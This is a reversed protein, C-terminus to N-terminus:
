NLRPSLPQWITDNVPVLSQAEIARLVFEDEGLPTRSLAERMAQEALPLLSTLDIRWRHNEREFRWRLASPRNGDMQAATAVDGSIRFDALQTRRLSAGGGTWGHDVYYRFLRAGDMEKLAAADIRSRVLLVQIRDTIPMKRVRAAPGYLAIERIASYYEHTTASVLDVAAAGDRAMLATQYAALTERLQEAVRDPANSSCAVLLLACPLLAAFVASKM